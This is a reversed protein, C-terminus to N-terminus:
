LAAGKKTKYIRSSRWEDRMDRYDFSQLGFVSCFRLAESDHNGTFILYLLLRVAKQSFNLFYFIFLTFACGMETRYPLVQRYDADITSPRVFMKFSIFAKVYSTLVTHWSFPSFLFRLFYDSIIGDVMLVKVINYWKELWKGRSWEANVLSFFLSLM